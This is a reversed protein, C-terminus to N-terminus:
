HRALLDEEAHIFHIRIM